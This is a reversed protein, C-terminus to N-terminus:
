SAAKFTVVQMVWAASGSLSATASYSGTATVLRDEVIDADPDTIIRTTFGSGAGSFGGTTTGAGLVLERAAAAGGGARAVIEAEERDQRANLVVPMLAEARGHRHGLLDLEGVLELVHAGWITRSTALLVLSMAPSPVVVAVTSAA